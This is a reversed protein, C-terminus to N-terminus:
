LVDTLTFSLEKGIVKITNEPFIFNLKIPRYSSEFMSDKVTNDYFYIYRMDVTIEKPRDYSSYNYLMDALSEINAYTDRPKGIFISKYTGHDKYYATLKTRIDNYISDSDKSIDIGYKKAEESLVPPGLPDITETSDASPNTASSSCSATMLISFISFIFLFKKLM